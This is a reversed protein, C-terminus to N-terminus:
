FRGTATKQYPRILVEGKQNTIYSFGNDDYFSISFKKSLESVKEGKAHSWARRRCVSFM